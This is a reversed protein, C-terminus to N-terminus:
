STGGAVQSRLGSRRRFPRSPIPLDSVPGQFGLYSSLVVQFFSRGQPQAHHMQRRHCSASWLLRKLHM